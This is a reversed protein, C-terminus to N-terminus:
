KPAASAPVPRRSRAACISSGGPAARTVPGSASVRARPGPLGRKDRDRRFRVTRLLSEAVESAKAGGTRLGAADPEKLPDEHREEPRKSRTPSAVGPGVEPQHTLREREDAVRARARVVYGEDTDFGVFHRGTRLAAVATSGSGMFPDYVLDDGYTYLEILRRPLEVPFPAPHGVRSASEAPIDWLDLTADM